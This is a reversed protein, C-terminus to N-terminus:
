DGPDGDGGATGLGHEIASRLTANDVNTADVTFTRRSGDPDDWSVHISRDRGLRLWTTIIAVIGSVAGSAVVVAVEQPGAGKAGALGGGATRVTLPGERSLDQHLLRVQSLWRDDDADFRDSTAAVVLQLERM